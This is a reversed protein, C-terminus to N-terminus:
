EKHKAQLWNINEEIVKEKDHYLGKSPNPLSSAYVAYPVGDIITTTFIYFSKRALEEDSLSEMWQRNTQFKAEFMNHDKNCNWCPEERHDLNKYKCNQCNKEM